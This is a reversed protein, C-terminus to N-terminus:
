CAKQASAQLPHSLLLATSPPHAQLESCVHMDIVLHM